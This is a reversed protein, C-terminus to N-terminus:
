TSNGLCWRRRRATPSDGVSNHAQVYFKLTGKAPLNELLADLDSVLPQGIFDM